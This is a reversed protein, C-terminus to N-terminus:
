EGEAWIRFAMNHKNARSINVNDIVSKTYGKPGCIFIGITPTYSKYTEIANALINLCNMKNFITCVPSELGHIIDVGTSNHIMYQLYKFRVKDKIDIFNSKQEKSNSYYIKLILNNLRFRSFANNIVSIYEKLLNIDGISWILVTSNSSLNEGQIIIDNIVSMFTTIGIGACFFYRVNYFKYYRFKSIEYYGINISKNYSEAMLRESLANTWDGTKKITLVYEYGNHNRSLTFPHWEIASIDTNNIYITITSFKSTANDILKDCQLYLRITSSTVNWRSIPVKKKFFEYRRTWLYSLFLPLIFIFSLNFGLLFSCGHAIISIMILASLWKHFIYALSYRINFFSKYYMFVRITIFMMLFLFVLFIGSYYPFQKMFYLYSIKVNSYKKNVIHVDDYSCGSKCKEISWRIHLIHGLVHIISFIIIKIGFLKHYFCDYEGSIRIMIEDPIFSSIGSMPLLICFANSLILIASLRSVLLWHPFSFLVNYNIVLVLIIDMCMTFVFINYKSNYWSENVDSFVTLDNFIYQKDYHAYVDVTNLFSDIKIIKNNLLPEDNRNKIKKLYQYIVKDRLQDINMNHLISRYSDYLDNSNIIGNTSLHNFVIQQWPVIVMGQKSREYNSVDTNNRDVKFSMKYNPM